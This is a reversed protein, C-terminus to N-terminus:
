GFQDPNSLLWFNLATKDDVTVNKYEKIDCFCLDLDKQNRGGVMSEISTDLVSYKKSKNSNANNNAVHDRPLIYATMGEFDSKLTEDTEVKTIAALLTPDLSEISHILKRM